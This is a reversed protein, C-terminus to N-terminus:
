ASRRRPSGGPAPDHVAGELRRGAPVGHRPSTTAASARSRGCSRRRRGRARARTQGPALFAVSAKRDPRPPRAPQDEPRPVLVRVPEPGEVQEHEVIVPIVSRRRRRDRRRRRPDRRPSCAACPGGLPSSCPSSRQDRRVRPDRAHSAAYGSRGLARIRGDGGASRGRLIAAAGAGARRARTGSTAGSWGHGAELLEGGGGDDVVNRSTMIPTTTRAVSEPSAQGSQGAAELALEDRREVVALAQISHIWRVTAASMPTGSGPCPPARTSRGGRGASSGTATADGRHQEDANWAHSPRSVTRSPFVPSDTM